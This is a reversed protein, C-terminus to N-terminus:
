KFKKIRMKVYRRVDDPLKMRHFMIGKKMDMNSAKQIAKITRHNFRSSMIWDIISLHFKIWSLIDEKDITGEHYRMEVHGDVLLSHLNLGHYRTDRGGGGDKYWKKQIMKRERSNIKRLMGSFESDTAVDELSKCYMNSRRNAPLMAYIIDEIARYTLFLHRLKKEDHQIDKTDIHVHLGCTDNVVWSNKRLSSCANDVIRELESSSAPPTQIEVVTDGRLSGDDAIGISEDLMEDLDASMGNVAEIEIGVLRDNKIVIAKDKDGVLPTSDWDRFPMDEHTCRCERCRTDECTECYYGDDNHFINDCGCCSFYNDSYCAECLTRYEDSRTYDEGITDGCDDCVCAYNDRCDQCWARERGRYVHVIQSEDTQHIEECRECTFYKNDYCDHCLPKKSYTLFEEGEEGVRECEKCVPPAVPEKIVEDTM